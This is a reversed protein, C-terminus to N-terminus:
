TEKIKNLEKFYNIKFHDKKYINKFFDLIYLIIVLHKHGQSKIVKFTFCIFFIFDLVVLIM